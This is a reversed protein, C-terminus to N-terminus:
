HLLLISCVCFKYQWLFLLTRLRFYVTVPVVGIHVAECCDIIFYAENNNNSNDTNKEIVM